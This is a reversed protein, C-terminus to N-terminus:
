FNEINHLNPTPLPETKKQNPASNLKSLYGCIETKLATIM